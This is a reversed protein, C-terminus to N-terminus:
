CYTRHEFLFPPIIDIIISDGTASYCWFSLWVFLVAQKCYLAANQKLFRAIPNVDAREGERM